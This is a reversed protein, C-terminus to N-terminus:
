QVIMKRTVVTDGAKVTYFYVGNTLKSGDITLTHTGSNLKEPNGLIVKQGVANYVEISVNAAEKLTIDISTAKSFPNPYNQSITVNGNQALEEAGTTVVPTLITFQSEDFQIGSVFYHDFPLAVDGSGDRSASVTTPIKFTTGSVLAINSTFMYYNIGDFTFQTTPTAYSSSINWGRGYIDPIANEGSVATPDSDMWMYFLHSGDTSASVQIRADVIFKTSTTKDIFPSNANAPLCKLSDILLASWGTSTTYTDYIYSIGGSGAAGGAPLAPNYTYDLSDVSTTAGSAVVCVIHLNGNIDVVADMGDGQSYWAKKPGTQTYTGSGVVSSAYLKAKISPISSYDYSAMKTWVIPSSNGNTTKYVIPQYGLKTGTAAADVGIFVMYGTAGDKSWATLVSTLAENNKATPNTKFSPKISDLAWTFTNGSPKAINITAGRYANSAATASASGPDGGYLGGTVIVKNDTSQIAVRAFWQKGVGATANLKIAPTNTTTKDLKSNAFFNGIWGNVTGGNTIPGTVVGFASGPTTNSTPNFIAGSPYRCLNTQDQVQLLSDWTTGYNTTYTCQIFGSNVGTPAWDKSIRHTFMVLGTAQNATLCNSESVLLTNPNWSSTFKTKTIARQSNVSTIAPKKHVTPLSVIDNDVKNTQSNTLDQKVAHLKNQATANICFGISLVLLLHTKM